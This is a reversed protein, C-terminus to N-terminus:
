FQNLKPLDYAALGSQICLDFRMLIPLECHLIRILRNVSLAVPLFRITLLVVPEAEEIWLRRNERCGLYLWGLITSNSLACDERTRSQGM